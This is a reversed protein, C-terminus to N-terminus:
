AKEWLHNRFWVDDGIKCKRIKSFQKSSSSLKDKIIGYIGYQDFDYVDYFEAFQILQGDDAFQRNVGFRFNYLVKGGVM